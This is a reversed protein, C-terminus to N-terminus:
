RSAHITSEESRVGISSIKSFYIEGLIISASTTLHGYDFTTLEFRDTSGTKNDIKALCKNDKCLTDRPNIFNIGTESSIKSLNENCRQTNEKDINEVYAPMADEDYLRRSILYETLTPQWTPLCGIISINKKDVKESLFSITKLLSREIDGGSELGDAPWRAHLVVKDKSGESIASFRKENLNRCRNPADIGLDIIPLCGTITFQSFGYKSSSAKALGPAIAAAHSDGIVYLKPRGDNPAFCKPSFEGKDDSWSGVFCPNGWIGTKYNKYKARLALLSDDFRSEFGDKLIISSGIAAAISLVVVSAVLPRHAGGTSRRRFPSEIFKYTLYSMAFVIIIIAVYHKTTAEYFHMRFFAFAPQHWLYASYSLLGIYVLPRFSLIKGAITNSKAFVIVLICGVVPLISYISPFPTSSDLLTMSILIMLLGLASLTEYFVPHITIKTRNQSTSIAIISGSLLEWARTPLLYFNASPYNRWMYESLALSAAIISLLAISRYKILKGATAVMLVPFLIYFQEEVGLSWTHLLPNSESDPSFYDTSSWFFINSSFLSVSIISKGFEKFQDPLMLLWALPLCAAVVFFLAPLIRRARREYFKYFSFSNSSIERSIISTILYGSIVFFIDVGAFGGPFYSFGAHYFIVSLVAIARLGDIEPRYSINPNSM